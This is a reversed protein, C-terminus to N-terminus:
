GPQRSGTGLRIRGRERLGALWLMPHDVHNRGRRQRRMDKYQLGSATTTFGDDVGSDAPAEGAETSAKTVIIDEVPVNQFPVGDPDEQTSTDVESMADVVSMGQIVEAFVAFGGSNSPNDLSPNDVVNIFFQSTASDPDSTKAM